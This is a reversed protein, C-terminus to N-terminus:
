TLKFREQFAKVHLRILEINLAAIWPEAEPEGMEEWAERVGTLFSIRNENTDPIQAEEMQPLVTLYIYNVMDDYTSM